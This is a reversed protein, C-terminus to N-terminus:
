GCEPSPQDLTGNMQCTSRQTGTMTYGAACSYYVQTVTGNTSMHFNLGATPIHTDCEVLVFSIYPINM